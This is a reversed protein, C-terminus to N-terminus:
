LFFCRFIKFHQQITCTIGLFFRIRCQSFHPSCLRGGVASATRRTRHTGMEPRVGTGGLSACPFSM